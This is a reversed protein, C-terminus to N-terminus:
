GARFGGLMSTLNDGLGDCIYGGEQVFLTPRGLAAIAAGIRAFGPTTVALGQFPDDEFADLGLAVVIADAGFSTM